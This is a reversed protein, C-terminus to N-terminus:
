RVVGHWLAPLEDKVEKLAPGMTPFKNYTGKSWVVKTGRQSRRRYRDKKDPNPADNKVRVRIPYQGGKEFAEPSPDMEQAIPGVVVDEAVTDYAFLISKKFKGTRSRPPLGSTDRIRKGNEDVLPNKLPRRVKNRAIRRTLAGGSKMAILKGAEVRAVIGARDFFMDKVAADVNFFGAQPM